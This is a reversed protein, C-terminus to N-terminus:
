PDAKGAIEEDSSAYEDESVEDDSSKEEPAIGADTAKAYKECFESLLHSLIHSTNGFDVVILHINQTFRIIKHLFKLFYM